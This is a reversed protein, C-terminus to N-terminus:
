RMTAPKSVLRRRSLRCGPPMPLVGHTNPPPVAAADTEAGLNSNNIIGDFRLGSVREIDRLMALADEPLATLPRYRNYVFYMTYGAAIYEDHSLGM